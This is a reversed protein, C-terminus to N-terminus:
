PANSRDFVPSHARDRGAAGVVNPSARPVALEVATAAGTGLHPLICTCRWLSTADGEVPSNGECWTCTIPVRERPYSMCRVESCMYMSSEYLLWSLRDLRGNSRHITKAPLPDRGSAPRDVSPGASAWARLSGWPMATASSPLPSTYMASVQDLQM